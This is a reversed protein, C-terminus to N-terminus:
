RWSHPEFGSCTGKCGLCAVGRASQLQGLSMQFLFLFSPTKRGFMKSQLHKVELLSPMSAFPSHPTWLAQSWYAMVFQKGPVSFVLRSCPIPGSPLCNHFPPARGLLFAIPTREWGGTSNWFQLVPQFRGATLSWRNWGGGEGVRVQWQFPIKLSHRREKM